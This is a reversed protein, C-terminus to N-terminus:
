QPFLRPVVDLRGCGGAARRHSIRRALLARQGALFNAVETRGYNYILTNWDKHFGERPDSHEYLATGDFWGLGHDDSPFHGPVWDLLVGLGARHAADILDRFEHPPGFRITPAFLGVPQYGWSGDFPFESVPMLEIHTFGMYKAYSVLDEAAEKYSLPRGDQDWKRRWSGLHVEYISVPAEVSQASAGVRCGRATTGAM